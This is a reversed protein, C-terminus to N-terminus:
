KKLDRPLYVPTHIIYPIYRTEIQKEPQWLYLKQSLLVPFLYPQEGIYGKESSSISGLITLERGEKYIMPDLFQNIKVRFRGASNDTVNPRSNSNLAFQVVELQTMGERNETSAIVGGWRAMSQFEVTQSDAHADAPYNRASEYSTLPTTEPVQLQEPVGSCGVMLTLLILPLLFRM